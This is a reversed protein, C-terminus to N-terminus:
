EECMAMMEQISLRAGNKWYACRGDTLAVGCRGMLVDAFLPEYIKADLSVFINAGGVFAVHLVMGKGVEDCTAEDQWISEIKAKDM